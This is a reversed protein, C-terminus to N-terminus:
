GPGLGRGEGVEGCVDKRGSCSGAGVKGETVLWFQPFAGVESLARSVTSLM